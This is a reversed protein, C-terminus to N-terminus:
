RTSRNPQVIIPRFGTNGPGFNAVLYRVLEDKRNEPVEAGWGIMKTLNATWQRETLKQQRVIDTAHCNLCAQDAIAKGPGDPFPAIVTGLLPRGASRPKTQTQGSLVSVSAALVAVGAASFPRV